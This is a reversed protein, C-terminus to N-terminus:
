SLLRQDVAYIVLGAALAVALMYLSIRADSLGDLWRLFRHTATTSEPAHDSM